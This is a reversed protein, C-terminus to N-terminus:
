GENVGTSCPITIYVRGTEKDPLFGRPNYITSGHVIRMEPHLNELYRVVIRTDIETQDAQAAMFDRVSVPEIAAPVDSYVASWTTSMEGTTADQARIPEEITVRYRLRGADIM